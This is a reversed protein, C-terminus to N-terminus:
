ESAATVAAAQDKEYQHRMARLCQVGNAIGLSFNCVALSHAVPKIVFCYRTWILGTASLAAATSPSVTEIPRRFEDLSTLVLSWKFFPAWFFVTKPGAEHNWLPRLNNPVYRDCATIVTKYLKSM